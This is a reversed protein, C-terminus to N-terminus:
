DPEGPEITAYGASVIFPVPDTCRFKFMFDRGTGLQRWYVRTTYQGVEGLEAPEAQAWTNGGDTSVMLEIHPNSVYPWIDQKELPVVVPVTTTEQIATFTIPYQSGSDFPFADFEDMTWQWVTSGPIQTTSYSAANATFFNQFTTRGTFSVNAFYDQPLTGELVVVWSIENFFSFSDSNFFAGQSPVNANATILSGVNAINSSLWGEFTTSSDVVLDAAQIKITEDSTTTITETTNAYLQQQNVQSGTGVQMILELLAVSFINGNNRVHKSVWERKIIFGNDTYNNPDVFYVNGSEYDSALTGNNLTARLTTLHRQYEATGSQIESWTQTIGDFLFTRKASLFNLIYVPHGNFDDTSAVADAYQGNPLNNIVQDIDPTSIIVPLGTGNTEFVHMQGTKYRGLFVLNGMFQARSFKAALGINYAAGPLTVYPFPQNGQDVFWEMSQEGFVVAYGYCQDCAVPQDSYTELDGASLPDWSSADGVNSAQWFPTNPIACLVKQNHITLTDAGNPAFGTVMQITGNSNILDQTTTLLGTTQLFNVAQMAIVTDQLSLAPVTVVGPLATGYPDTAIWQTHVNNIASIQKTNLNLFQGNALGNIVYALSFVINAKDAVSYFQSASGPVTPIVTVQPVITGLKPQTGVVVAPIAASNAFPNTPDFAM